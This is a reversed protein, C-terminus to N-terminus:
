ILALINVNMVLVTSIVLPAWLDWPPFGTSSMTVCYSLCLQHLPNTNYDVSYIEPHGMRSRSGSLLRVNVVRMHGAGRQM